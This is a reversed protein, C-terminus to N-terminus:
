LRHFLESSERVPSKHWIGSALVFARL